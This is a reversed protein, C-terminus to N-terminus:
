EKPKPKFSFKDLNNISGRELTLKGVGQTRAYVILGVASCTAAAVISLVGVMFMDGAQKRAPPM